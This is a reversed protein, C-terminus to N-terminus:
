LRVRGAPMPVSIWRPAAQKPESSSVRTTAPARRAFGPRVVDHLSSRTASQSAFIMRRRPSVSVPREPPLLDEDDEAATGGTESDGEGAAPTAGDEGGAPAGEGTGAPEGAGEGELPDSVPPKNASRDIVGSDADSDDAPPDAGFERPEDMPPKRSESEGFMNDSGFNDDLPDPATRRNPEWDRSGGTAGFDDAPDPRSSRGGAGFDDDLPERDRRDRDYESDRFTKDSLPDPTPDTIVSGSPLCNASCGTTGCTSCGGCCSSMGCTNCCGNSYGVYGASYPVGCAGSACGGYPAYSVGAPAYGAYRYAPYAPYGCRNGWGNGWGYYGTSYTPYFPFLCASSSATCVFLALAAALTRM